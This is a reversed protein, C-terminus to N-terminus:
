GIDRRTKSEADYIRVRLMPIRRKLEVAGSRAGEETSFQTKIRGDVEIAFGSSPLGVSQAHMHMDRSLYTM